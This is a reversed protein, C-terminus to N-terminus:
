CTPHDSQVRNWPTGDANEFTSEQNTLAAIIREKRWGVIADAYEKLADPVDSDSAGYVYVGIIAKGQKHAQQIEYDVWESDHTHPGILCILTKAWKIRDRLLSKIYDPNNARNFKDSTVSSNKIQYDSGLLERIKGINEEDEHYHSVFVNNYEKETGM